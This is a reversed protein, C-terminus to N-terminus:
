AFDKRQKKRGVSVEDIPSQMINSKVYGVGGKSGGVYYITNRM